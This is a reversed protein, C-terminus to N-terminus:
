YVGLKGNMRAKKDVARYCLYGIGIYILVLAFLVTFPLALQVLTATEDTARRLLEIAWTPPLLYSIPKVWDPLIAIPFLFGCVLYIPYEIFNMLANTQRSLTFALALFFSFVSIAILVLVFSGFFLVPQVAPVEIQFFLVLYLFAIVMSLLGWVTNGIIKGILIAAFPVPTVFLLELTGYYRERQVESASSYVISSWLAMFGSGLVVYHFLREPSSGGYIFFALTALFLPNVVIVFKFMPRAISLGMQVKVTHLLARMM